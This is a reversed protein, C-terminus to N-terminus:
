RSWCRQVLMPRRTPCPAHPPGPEEPQLGLWEGRSNQALKPTVAMMCGEKRRKNAFERETRHNSSEGGPPTHDMEFVDRFTHEHERKPTRVVREVTIASRRVGVRVPPSFTLSVEQM